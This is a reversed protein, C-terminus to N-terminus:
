RGMRELRVEARGVWRSVSLTLAETLQELENKLQMYTRWHMRDPKDGQPNAIGPKWGLRHRINEARRFMRDRVNEHQCTYRLGLCARCALLSGDVYLAQRRADCASCILWRRQGGFNLEHQDIRVPWERNGHVVVGWGDTEIRVYTRKNVRLTSAYTLSAVPLHEVARKGGRSERSGSLIGGM